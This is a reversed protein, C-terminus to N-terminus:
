LQKYFLQFLLFFANWLFSIQVVHGRYEKETLWRLKPEIINLEWNFSSRHSFCWNSIAMRSSSNYSHLQIRTKQKQRNTVQCMLRSFCLRLAFCLISNLYIFYEMLKTSKNFIIATIGHQQNFPIWQFFIAQLFM